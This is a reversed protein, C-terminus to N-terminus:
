GRAGIARGDGSGTITEPGWGIFGTTIKQVPFDPLTEDTNQCNKPLTLRYAGAARTGVSVAKCGESMDDVKINKNM